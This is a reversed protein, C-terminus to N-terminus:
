MMMALLAINKLHEFSVPHPTGPLIYRDTLPTDALCWWRSRLAAEEHSPTLPIISDTYTELEELAGRGSERRSPKRMLTLVCKYDFGEEMGAAQQGGHHQVYRVM